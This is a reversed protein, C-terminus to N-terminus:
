MATLFRCSAKRQLPFDHEQLQQFNHLTEQQLFYCCSTSKWFALLLTKRLFKEILSLPWSTIQAPVASISCLLLFWLGQLSLATQRQSGHLPPKITPHFIIWLINYHWQSLRPYVKLQFVRLAEWWRQQPFYPLYLCIFNSFLHLGKWMLLSQLSHLM